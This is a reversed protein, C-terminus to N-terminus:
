SRKWKTMTITTGSGPTSAIDFSDMLRKAGPLGLGLGGGTSFGDNMAAAVDPIGPGHDRAVVRVGQLRGQQVVAVHMEGERAYLLTNRAIESIATAIEILQIDSFGLRTALQRAVRRAALIDPEGRIPVLQDDSM